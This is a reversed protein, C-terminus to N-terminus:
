VCGHIRVVQTHARWVSYKATSVLLQSGIASDSILQVLRDPDPYPLPELLVKNVVSFIATNAAIGLSLAGIAIATFGKARRLTRAGFRLDDALNPVPRNLQCDLPRERRQVDTLKRSLSSLWREIAVYLTCFHTANASSWRVKDTLETM